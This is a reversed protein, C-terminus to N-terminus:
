SQYGRLSHNEYVDRHLKHITNQFPVESVQVHLLQTRETRLMWAPIPCTESRPEEDVWQIGRVCTKRPETRLVPHQPHSALDNNAVQFALVETQHAM